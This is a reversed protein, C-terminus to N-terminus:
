GGSEFEFSWTWTAPLRLRGSMRVGQGRTLIGYDTSHDMDVLESSLAEPAVVRLRCGDIAFRDPAPHSWGLEGFHLRAEVSAEGVWGELRDQVELNANSWRYTRMWTLGSRHRGFGRWTFTASNSDMRWFGGELSAMYWRPLDRTQDLLLAPALDDVSVVNQGAASRFRNRLEGPQYSPMGGDVVIPRDGFRIEFSGRGSDGHGASEPRPDGHASLELSSASHVAVLLGGQPFLWSRWGGISSDAKSTSENRAPTGGRLYASAGAAYGAARDRPPEDILGAMASARPLGRMWSTPMDPSVDGFLPLSGDPRVLANTVECMARAKEVMGAPLARRADRADQLYNLLTRTLLVHYHSSGEGFVGDGLILKPWLDDWTARAQALWRSARPEAVLRAAARLARANNLLHNHTGLHNEFRGALREADDFLQRLLRRALEGPLEEGLTGLIEALACIRESTTYPQRSHVSPPSDLWDALEAPTNARNPELAWSLRDWAHRDEVDESGAAERPSPFRKGGAARLTGEPSGAPPPDVRFWERATIASETLGPQWDRTSGPDLPSAPANALARRLGRRHGHIRMRLPLMWMLIGDVVLGRRFAERVAAASERPPLPSEHAKM